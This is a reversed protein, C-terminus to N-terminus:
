SWERLAPLVEKLSSLCANLTGVNTFSQYILFVPYSFEPADRVPAVAGSDLYKQVARSRFYGRGGNELLYQLALPGLNLSFSSRALHPLAADHQRRFDAGWDIYLYPEDNSASRVMILKEELLQEVKVGSWYEPQHVLAAHLVGVQLQEHLRDREGVDVRIAIEPHTKALRSLWRVMIPNWLSVECGLVILQDRGEPLPLERRSAEWTQVLQNAHGVFHRGNDTLRAGSRNRIFLKCGLLGELNHIRATVATQTIHLKAAAALFSGSRVIELFTRALDIDMRVEGYKSIVLM